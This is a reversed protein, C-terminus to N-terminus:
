VPHVRFMYTHSPCWDFAGTPGHCSRTLASCLKMRVDKEKQALSGLKQLKVNAKSAKNPTGGDGNPHRYRQAIHGVLFVRHLGRLPKPDVTVLVATHRASM